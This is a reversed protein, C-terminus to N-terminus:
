CFAYVLLSANESRGGRKKSTVVLLRNHRWMTLPGFRFAMDVTLMRKWAAAHSAERHLSWEVLFLRDRGHLVGGGM